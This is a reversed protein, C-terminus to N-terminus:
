AFITFCLKFYSTYFFNTYFFNVYSPIFYYLNGLSMWYGQRTPSVGLTIYLSSFIIIVM